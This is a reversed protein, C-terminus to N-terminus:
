EAQVFYFQDRQAYLLVGVVTLSPTLGTELIADKVVPTLSIFFVAHTSLSM